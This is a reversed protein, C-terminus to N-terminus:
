NSSDSEEEKLKTHKWVKPPPSMYTKYELKLFYEFPFYFAGFLIAFSLAFILLWM